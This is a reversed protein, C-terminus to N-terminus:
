RFLQQGAKIIARHSHWTRDSIAGFGRDCATPAGGMPCAPTESAWHDGHIEARQPGTVVLTSNLVALPRIEGLTEASAMVMPQPELTRGGVRNIFGVAHSKPSPNVHRTFTPHPSPVADFAVPSEPQVPPRRLRMVEEVDSNVPGDYLPHLEVVKAKIRGANPRSMQFHHGWLDVSPALQAMHVPCMAKATMGVRRIGRVRQLAFGAVSLAALKELSVATLAFGSSALFTLAM